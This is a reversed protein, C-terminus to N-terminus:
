QHYKEQFLAIEQTHKNFLLSTQLCFKDNLILKNITM